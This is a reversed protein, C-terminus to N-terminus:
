SPEPLQRHDLVPHKRVSKLMLELDDIIDMPTEGTLERPNLTWYKVAGSKDYYVERVDFEDEGWQVIRYNWSM